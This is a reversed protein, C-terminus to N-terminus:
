QLQFGEKIESLIANVQAALEQSPLEQGDGLEIRLHFTIPVSTKANLELLQPVIDALNQIEFPDLEARAVFIKAPWKEGDEDVGEGAAGSPVKLKIAQASHFECPWERSGDVLEIFRAQLSATIVDKVTKWPLTRGAKQSLGTAIVLATTEDGPWAYTLNEPLLEAPRIVAPPTRLKAIPTLVRPPLPEGLISAPEALLWVHGREVATAIATEIVEQSAKPIQMPEQYGGKDIQVIKSEDFYDFVDQV